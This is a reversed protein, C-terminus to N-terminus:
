MRLSVGLALLDVSARTVGYFFNAAPKNLITRDTGSVDQGLNADTGIRSPGINREAFFLHMYSLDIGLTTSEGLKFAYSAGGSLGYKDSDPTTIDFHRDDIPSQDYLAGARVRLPSNNKGLPAIETGLRVTMTNKWQQSLTVDSMNAGPQPLLPYEHQFDIFLQHSTSWQQLNVDLEVMADRHVNVKAGFRIIMPMAMSVKVADTRSGAPLPNGQADNMAVINAPSSTANVTGDFHLKTPTMLSAGISFRDDEDTYLVGFTAGFKANDHAEISTDGESAPDPNPFDQPRGLLFPSANKQKLTFSSRIYSLGVGVSLRKFFRYAITPTVHISKLAIDTVLHRQAGDAPMSLSAGFPAYIGLGVGLDEIGCDSMVGLFPVVELSNTNKARQFSITADAPSTAFPNATPARFFTFRPFLALADVEAVLKGPAAIGAPNHFIASADGSQAVSAGAMGVSRAGQEPVYFGGAHASRAALSALVFSVGAAVHLGRISM